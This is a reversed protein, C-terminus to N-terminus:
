RERAALGAVLLLVAATLAVWMGGAPHVTLRLAVDDPLVRVASTFEEVRADAGFRAQPPPLLFSAVTVVTVAIAAVVLLERSRPPPRDAALALGVLVAGGAAAAVLWIWPQAQWGDLAAVTTTRSGGLMSVEASVEYWSLYVAAVGLAGAVTAAVGVAARARLALRLELALDGRM